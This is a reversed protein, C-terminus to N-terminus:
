QDMRMETDLADGRQRQRHPELYREDGREVSEIRCELHVRHQSRRRPKAIRQQAPCQCALAIQKETGGCEDSLPQQRPTEGLRARMSVVDAHVALRNAGNSFSAQPRKESM